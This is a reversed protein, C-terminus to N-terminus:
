VTQFCHGNLVIPGVINFVSFQRITGVIMSHQNAQVYSFEFLFLAPETYSGRLNHHCICWPRFSESLTSFIPLCSAVCPVLINYKVTPNFFM